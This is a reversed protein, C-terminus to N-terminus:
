AAPVPPRNWPMVALLSAMACSGTTGSFVLGAGVFGSLLVFWPSVFAALLVGLMVLAGASIQVQRQLAIPAKRDFHTPLKAAKWGALGGELHYIEKFGTKLIREAAEATRRGSGCHFVGIKDHDMPFDDPDFGSLPVLRAPLIHERAYEDAERIDILVAKDEDLWRKLTSADIEKLM